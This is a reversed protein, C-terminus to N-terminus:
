VLALASARDYAETRNRAGFKLLLHRLHYEVTNESIHLTRGIDLNRLGRGVLQLVERERRTLQPVPGAHRSRLMHHFVAGIVCVGLLTSARMAEVLREVDSGWELYVHCGRRVWNECRRWEHPPGLVALQVTERVARAAWVARQIEHDDVGQGILLWDAETAALLAPLARLDRCRVVAVGDDGPDGDLLGPWDGWLLVTRSM